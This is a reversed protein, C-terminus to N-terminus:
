SRIGEVGRAWQTPNATTSSFDTLLDDSLKAIAGNPHTSAMTLFWRLTQHDESASLGKALRLVDEIATSATTTQQKNHNM